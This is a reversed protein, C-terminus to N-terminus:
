HHCAHVCARPSCLSRHSCLRRAPVPPARARSVQYSYAGASYLGLLQYTKAGTAPDVGWLYQCDVHQDYARSSQNLALVTYVGSTPPSPSPPPPYPPYPAPPPTPPAIPAPPPSPGPPPPSPSPPPPPSPPLPPSAPRGTIAACNRTLSETNPISGYLDLVQNGIGINVFTTPRAGCSTATTAYNSVNFSASFFLNVTSSLDVTAVAAGTARSACYSPAGGVGRVYTSTTYPCAQRLPIMITFCSYQGVSSTLTQATTYQSYEVASLGNPFTSGVFALGSPDANISPNPLLFQGNSNGTQGALFGSANLSVTVYLNDSYDKFAFLKAYIMLPNTTDYLDQETVALNCADKADYTIPYNTPAIVGANTIFLPSRGFGPYM